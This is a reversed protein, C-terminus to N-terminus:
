ITGLAKGARQLSKLDAARFFVASMVFSLKEKKRVCLFRKANGHKTAKVALAHIRKVSIDTVAEAIYVALRYLAGTNNHKLKIGM